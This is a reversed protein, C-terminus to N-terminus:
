EQNTLNFVKVAAGFAGATPDHANIMQKSCNM